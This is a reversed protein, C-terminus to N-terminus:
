SIPETAPQRWEPAQSRRRRCFNVSGAVSARPARLSWKLKRRARIVYAKAGSPNSLHLMQTIRSLPVEQLYHLTFIQAELPDLTRSMAERILTVLQREEPARSISHWSSDCLRASVEETLTIPVVPTARLFALCHNRTIAYLWTSVKSEQRYTNLHKFAKLFVDQALDVSRDRDRTFRFCWTTIRAEYRRFMEEFYVDCESASQDNRFRGLLQEDTLQAFSREGANLSNAVRDFSHM